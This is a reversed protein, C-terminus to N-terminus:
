EKRITKIVAELEDLLEARFTVNLGEYYWDNHKMFLKGFSTTNTELNYYLIAEIEDNLCFEKKLALNGTLSQSLIQLKDPIPTALKQGFYILGDVPSSYLYSFYLDTGSKKEFTASEDILLGDGTYESPFQITYGDKFAETPFNPNAEMNICIINTDSTKEEKTCSAVLLM